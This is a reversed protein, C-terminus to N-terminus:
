INLEIIYWAMIHNSDLKPYKRHHVVSSPTTRRCLSQLHNHDDVCHPNINPTFHLNSLLGGEPTSVPPFQKPHQLVGRWGLCCVLNLPCKAPYSAKAGVKAWFTQDSIFKVVIQSFYQFFQTRHSNTEIM